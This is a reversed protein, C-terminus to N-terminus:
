VEGAWVEAEGSEEFLTMQLGDHSELRSNLSGWPTTGPGGILTAGARVAAGTRSSADDVQFAIRFQAGIERGAEIRDIMLTQARNSLELTGRSAALLVVRADDQEYSVVEELGLADRYLALAQDVDQVEIVVRIESASM